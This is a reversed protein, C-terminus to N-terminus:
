KSALHSAYREAEERTTHDSHWMSPADDPDNFYVSWFEADKDDVRRVEGDVEICGSVFAKM